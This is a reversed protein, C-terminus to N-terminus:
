TSKMLVSSLLLTRIQHFLVSYPFTPAVLHDCTKRQFQYLLSFFFLIKQIKIEKFTIKQKLIKLSPLM